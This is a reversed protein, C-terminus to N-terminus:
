DLDLLSTLRVKTLDLNQPIIVRYLEATEFAKKMINFDHHPRNEIKNNRIDYTYVYRYFEKFFFNWEYLNVFAMKRALDSATIDKKVLIKNTKQRELYFVKMIKSLNAVRAQPNLKEIGVRFKLDLGEFVSRLYWHPSYKKALNILKFIPKYYFRKLGLVSKAIQEDKLNYDFMRISKPSPYAIGKCIILWDDSLYNYGEKLLNLVISTKGTGAGGTFVFAKGEREVAGAHLLTKDPWWMLGECFWLLFNLRREKKMGEDYWLVNEDERFPVYMGKFSGVSKTPLNKGGKSVRVFLNVSSPKTSTKFYAFESQFIEKSVGEVAIIFGHIDYYNIEEKVTTTSM